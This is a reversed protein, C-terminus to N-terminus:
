YLPVIITEILRVLVMFLNFYVNIIHLFWNIFLSLVSVSLPPLPRTTLHQDLSRFIGPEFEALPVWKKQAFFIKLGASFDRKTSFGNRQFFRNSGVKSTEFVKFRGFGSYWCPLNRFQWTKSFLSTDLHAVTQCPYIKNFLVLLEFWKQTKFVLKLFKVVLGKAVLLGPKSM